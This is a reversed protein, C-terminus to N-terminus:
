QSTKVTEAPMLYRAHYKKRLNEFWDKLKEEQRQRLLHEHIAAQVQELPLSGLKIRNKQYFDKIESESIKIGESETRFKLFAKARLRRVIMSEIEAQTVGIKKWEKLGRMDEMFPNSIKKVEDASAEAIGFNDAELTVMAETMIEALTTKFAEQNFSELIWDTSPKVSKQNKVLLWQDLAGAMKVERSTVVYSGVRGVTSSVVAEVALGSSSSLIWVSSILTLKATLKLGLKAKFKKIFKLSANQM